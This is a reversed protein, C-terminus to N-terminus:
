LTSRNRSVIMMNEAPIQNSQRAPVVHWGYLPRDGRVPIKEKDEIYSEKNQDKDYELTSITERAFLKLFLAILWGGVHYPLGGPGIALFALYNKRAWLGSLGVVAVTTATTCPNQTVAEPLRQVVPELYPAASEFLNSIHPSM